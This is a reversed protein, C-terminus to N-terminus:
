PLVALTAVPERVNSTATSAVRGTTCSSDNNLVPAPEHSMVSPEPRVTNCHVNALVGPVRCVACTAPSDTRTVNEAVAGPVAVATTALKM